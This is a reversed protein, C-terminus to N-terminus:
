PARNAMVTGSGGSCVGWNGVVYTADMFGEDSFIFGSITFDKDPDSEDILGIEFNANSDSNFTGEFRTDSLCPNGSLVIEGSLARGEQQMTIIVEGAFGRDSTWEGYWTGSAADELQSDSVMDLEADVEVTSDPEVDADTRDADADYCLGNTCTSGIVCDDNSDCNPVREEATGCASMVSILAAAFAVLHASVLGAFHHPSSLRARM